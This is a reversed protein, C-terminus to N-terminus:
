KVLRSHVRDLLHHLNASPQYGERHAVVKGEPVAVLTTPFMKVKVRSLESANRQPTLRIAIFGGAIRNRIGTDVWTTQKMIECYRCSASTIFIVMPRGSLKAARWGSALDDHWEVDAPVNAIPSALSVMSPHQAECLPTGIALLGALTLSRVLWGMFRKM